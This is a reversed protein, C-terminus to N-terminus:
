EPEAQDDAEIQDLEVLVEAFIGAAFLANALYNADDISLRLSLVSRSGDARVGVVRYTERPLM